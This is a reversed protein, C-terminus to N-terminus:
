GGRGGLFINAVDKVEEGCKEAPQIFGGEREEGGDRFGIVVM